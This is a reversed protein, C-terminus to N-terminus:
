PLVTTPAPPPSTCPSCIAWRTWPWTCSPAAHASTAMGAPGIGARPRPACPAATWYRRPRSKRGGRRWACCPACITRWCRELCGAQLWRQAQQYVAAWPPLDHPMARWPIGNKVVYRLGNFVERLPHERQGADGRLLTLYPVVLTWEEDSVDSPYPKRTTMTGLIQSGVGAWDMVTELGGTTMRRVHPPM